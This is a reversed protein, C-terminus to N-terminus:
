FDGIVEGGSRTSLARWLALDITERVPRASGDTLLVQVVGNHYSRSTVAAYTIQDITAGERSSNFDIDYTGGNTYPVVTNPGFVSTFGTQHVRADVWETHGSDSKFNGGLGAVAAPSAPPLAGPASPNGGDRLYPTYAKVEAFALTNSLGDLFDRTALRTNVSFAGDGGQNSRANYVHWTGFNAGYSLPYHIVAGDPRPRDNIESPCLYIAVRQQTVQPQASYPLNFDILNQLNAQELYPLLHAHVSFSVGTQGRPYLGAAPFRSMTDHYNHLALGIQKLNNLCKARNAAERVKQVAPLLLGILVAIIAIVVLLEILTFGRRCIARVRPDVYVPADEQKFTPIAAGKTELLIARGNAARIM